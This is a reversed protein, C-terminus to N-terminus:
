VQKFHEIKTERAKEDSIVQDIKKEGNLIQNVESFHKTVGVNQSAKPANAIIENIEAFHKKAGESLEDAAVFSTMLVAASIFKM